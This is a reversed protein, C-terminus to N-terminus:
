KIGNLYFWKRKERGYLVYTTVYNTEQLFLERMKQNLKEITTEEAKFKEVIYDWEEPRGRRFVDVRKCIM